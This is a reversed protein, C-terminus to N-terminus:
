LYNLRYKAAKVVREKAAKEKATREKSAREIAVRKATAEKASKEAKSAREDAAAKMVKASKEQVKKQAALYKKLNAPSRCVVCSERCHELMYKPNKSCENRKAWESCKAHNDKCPKEKVATKQGPKVKKLAVELAERSPINQKALAQIATPAAPLLSIAPCAGVKHGGSSTIALYIAKGM